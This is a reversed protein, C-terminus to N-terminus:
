KTLIERIEETRDLDEEEERNENGGREIIPKLRKIYEISLGELRIGLFTPQYINENNSPFQRVIEKELKKEDEYLIIKINM